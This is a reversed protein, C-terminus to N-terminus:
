LTKTTFALIQTFILVNPYLSRKYTSVRSSSMLYQFLNSCLYSSETEIYWIINLERNQRWTFHGARTYLAFLILIDRSSFQSTNIAMLRVTHELLQFIVFVSCDVWRTIFSWSLASSGSIQICLSSQGWDVLAYKEKACCYM